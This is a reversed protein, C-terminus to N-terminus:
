RECAKTPYKGGVPEGVRRECRRADHLHAFRPSERARIVESRDGVQRSIVYSYLFLFASLAKHHTSASIKKKVALHTLLSNTQPGAMEAPSSINYFYIFRTVWHCYAQEAAPADERPSGLNVKGAFSQLSQSTLAGITM